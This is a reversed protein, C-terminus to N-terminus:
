KHHVSVHLEISKTTIVCTRLAENSDFFDPLGDM